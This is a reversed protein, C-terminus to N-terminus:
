QGDRGYWGETPSLNNYIIYYEKVFKLAQM